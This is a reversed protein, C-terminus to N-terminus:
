SDGGPSHSVLQRLLRNAEEQLQESKASNGIRALAILVEKYDYETAISVLFVLGSYYQDLPSRNEILLQAPESKSIFVLSDINNHTFWSTIVGEYMRNGFYQGYGYFALPIVAPDIASEYVIDLYDNGLPLLSLSIQTGAPFLPIVTQSGGQYVLKGGGGPRELTLLLEIAAPLAM